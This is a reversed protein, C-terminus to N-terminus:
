MKELVMQYIEYNKEQSKQCFQSNKGAALQQFECYKLAVWQFFERSKILNKKKGATMQHFKRYKKAVLQHFESNIKM